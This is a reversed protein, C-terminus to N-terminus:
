KSAHCFDPPLPRAACRDKIFILRRTTIADRQSQDGRAFVLADRLENALGLPTIKDLALYASLAGYASEITQPVSAFIITDGAPPAATAIDVGSSLNASSRIAHALSQVASRPDLRSAHTAVPGM